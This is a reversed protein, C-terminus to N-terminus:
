RGDNKSMCDIRASTKLQFEFRRRAAAYLQQDYRVLPQLIDRVSPNNLDIGYRYANVNERVEQKGAPLALSDAIYQLSVSMEEALGIIHIRGLNAFAERCHSESVRERFKPSSLFRVHYNDFLSAEAHSMSEVFASLGKETSFDFGTMRRSIEKIIDPHDNLFDAKEPESLHRVWYIHSVLQRLPERFFCILVRNQDGFNREYDPFQIHGSLMSVPRAKDQWDSRIGEIHSLCEGEPFSQRFFVNVSSGATKPIHLFFAKCDPYHNRTAPLDAAPLLVEVTAPEFNDAAFQAVYGCHLHTSIGADLVDPRAQDAIVLRMENGKQIRVVQPAESGSCIIWGRVCPSIAEDVRGRLSGSLVTSHRGGSVVPFRNFLNSLKM